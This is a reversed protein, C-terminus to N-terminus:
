REWTQITRRRTYHAFDGRFIERWGAQRALTNNNRLHAVKKERYRLTKRIDTDLCVGCWCQCWGVCVTMWNRRILVCVASVLNRKEWRCFVVVSCHSLPSAPHNPSTLFHPIFILHCALPKLRPIEKKHQAHHSSALAGVLLTIIDVNEANRECERVLVSSRCRCPM